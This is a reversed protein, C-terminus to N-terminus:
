KRKNEKSKKYATFEDISMNGSFIEWDDASLGEREAVSAALGELKPVSRPVDAGRSVARGRGDGVVGARKAAEREAALAKSGKVRTFAELVADPRTAMEAPFQNLYQDVEDEVATFADGWTRRVQEKAAFRASQLFVTRDGNYAEKLGAVESSMTEGIHKAVETKIFWRAYGEPDEERNPAPDEKPKPTSPQNRQALHNSLEQNYRTAQELKDLLEKQRAREAELEAKLDPEVQPPVEEEPLELPEEPM